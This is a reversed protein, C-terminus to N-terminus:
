KEALQYNIYDTILNNEEKTKADAACDAAFSDELNAMTFGDFGFAKMYYDVAKQLQRRSRMINGALVYDEAEPNVALLKALYKEAQEMKGSMYCCWCIPRLVKTNKPDLYEVKFYYKLADQYNDLELHCRGIATAITLNDADLAEAKQYYELAKAPNKLRRYCWGIKKLNWLQSDNFLQAHLYNDLALQIDGNKQAAYGMKQFIEFNPDELSIKEFIGYAQSYNENVFFFEGIKRMEGANHFAADYLLTASPNFEKEFVEPFDERSKNLKFFRYLDQIYQTIVKYSFEPKHLLADEDSLENMQDVESLFYKGMIKIQEEPMSSISLCFSYKDSNCMFPARELGSAFTKMKFESEYKSSLGSISSNQRYFPVFWNSLTNFFEFSKLMAFSNLFVDSGELQLKSIDALKDLLGPNEKFYDSWDPNKDEFVKDDSTRSDAKMKDRIGPMLKTVEPIIEKNIKQTLKDTNISRIFQIIVTEYRETFKQDRKLGSLIEDTETYLGIRNNYVYFVLFLGVLARQWIQEQNTLYCKYLLRVKAIDFFLLLSLTLATVVLSKAYWPTKEDLVIEEILTFTEGETKENAVLFNFWENLNTKSPKELPVVSKGAFVPSSTYKKLFRNKYSDAMMLLSIQLQRLIANRNPDDAGQLTYGLMLRYTQEAMDIDSNQPSLGSHEALQKVLSIANYIKQNLIHSVAQGHITFIEFKNMTHLFNEIAFIIFLNKILPM